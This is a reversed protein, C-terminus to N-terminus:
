FWETSKNICIKGIIIKFLFICKFWGLEELRFLIKYMNPKSDCKQLELSIKRARWWTFTVFSSCPSLDNLSQCEFYELSYLINSVVQHNYDSLCVHILEKKLSMIISRVKSRFISERTWNKKYVKMSMLSIYELSYLLNSSLIISHLKREM